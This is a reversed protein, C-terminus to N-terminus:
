KIYELDPFGAVEQDRRKGRPIRRPLEDMSNAFTFYSCMMLLGMSIARRMASSTQELLLKKEVYKLETSLEQIILADRMKDVKLRCWETAMVSNCTMCIPVSPPEMGEELIDYRGAIDKM